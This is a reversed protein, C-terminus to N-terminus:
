SESMGLFEKHLIKSFEDVKARFLLLDGKVNDLEDWFYNAAKMGSLFLENAEEVESAFRRRTGELAAHLFKTGAYACEEKKDLGAEWAKAVYDVLEYYPKLVLEWSIVGM